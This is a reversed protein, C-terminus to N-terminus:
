KGRGFARNMVSEFKERSKKNKASEEVEVENNDADYFAVNCIGSRFDKQIEDLKQNFIWESVKENRIQSKPIWVFRTISKEVAPVEFRVELQVAKETEKIAKM